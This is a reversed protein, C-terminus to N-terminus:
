HMVQQRLPVSVKDICVSSMEITVGETGRFFRYCLSFRDDYRYIEIMVHSIEDNM